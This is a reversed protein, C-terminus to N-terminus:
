AAEPTNATEAHRQFAVIWGTAADLRSLIADHATDILAGYHADIMGVSTGTIRHKAYRDRWTNGAGVITV